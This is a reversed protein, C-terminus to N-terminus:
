QKVYFYVYGDSLPASPVENISADDILHWKDNPHHCYAVYHGGHFCGSHYAMSVLKYKSPDNSITYPSMDLELPMAVKSENKKLDYTFRKLSVIMIPPNRWLKVTKRSKCKQKCRDCRWEIDNEGGGNLYVDEFYKKLCTNIDGHLPLSLNCYIEYNHTLEDCNGCIVQTISQGYFMEVLQSYEKGTKDWWSEDMRKSLTKYMKSEGRAYPDKVEERSIRYCIGTNLKDLFLAIFENIDNQQRVEILDGFHSQLSKVFRRPVLTYDNVWMDELISSLENMLCSEEIQRGHQVADKIYQKSVTYHLFSLCHSLCQIATNMYCTAGVNQLGSPGKKAYVLKLENQPIM